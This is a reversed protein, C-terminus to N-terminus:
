WILTPLCVKTVTWKDCIGVNKPEKRKRLDAFIKPTGIRLDFIQLNKNNILLDAIKVFYQV